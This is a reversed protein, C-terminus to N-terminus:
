DQASDRDVAITVQALAGKASKPATASAIVKEVCAAAQPHDIASVQLRVNKIGGSPAVIAQFGLVATADASQLIPALCSEFDKRKSELAANIQDPDLAGEVSHVSIRLSPAGPELWSKLSKMEPTAASAIPKKTAVDVLAYSLPEIRLSYAASKPTSFCPSLEDSGRDLRFLLDLAIEKSAIRQLLASAEKPALKFWAGGRKMASLTVAGDLAVFAQDLRLPLAGEEVRYEGMRFGRPDVLIRYVARRASEAKLALEHREIGREVEDGHPKSRRGQLEGCLAELRAEQALAIPNDLSGEGKGKLFARADADSDERDEDGGHARRSAGATPRSQDEAGAFRPLSSISAGALLAIAIRPLSSRRTM